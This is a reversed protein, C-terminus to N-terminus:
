RILTPLRGACLRLCILSQSLRQDRIEHDTARKWWTRYILTRWFWNQVPVKHPAIICYLPFKTPSQGLTLLASFRDTWLKENYGGMLKILLFDQGPVEHPAIVSFNPWFMPPCQPGSDSRPWSVLQYKSRLYGVNSKPYICSPVKHPAYITM